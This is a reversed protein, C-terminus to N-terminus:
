QEFGSGCQLQFVQGKAVLDAHELVEKITGKPNYEALREEIFEGLREYFWSQIVERRYYQMSSIKAVTQAFQPIAPYLQEPEAEIYLRGDQERIRNESLIRDFIRQKNETDVHCGNYGGTRDTAGSCSNSARSNSFDTRRPDL